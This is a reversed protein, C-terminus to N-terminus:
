RIMKEIPLVLIGEAGAAQLTDVLKWTDSEPLLTHISSWGAKHLPMVTPSKAGPLLECIEDVKETPANLMVYRNRRAELVANVRFRFTEAAERDELSESVVLCAESRLLVDVERLGNSWLTSGTSVLDCVADALGMRPAVEVSGGITHIGADIRESDLWRQLSNPYSTAIRRGEFWASGSYSEEEPVALSLRCKGFGLRNWIEFDGPYEILTNEGVIAMDVVGDNLYRPIDSNRLLLIELPFNLAPVKLQGGGNAVSIGCEKLLKISEDHLRGSKQIALRFM